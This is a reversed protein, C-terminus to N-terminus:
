VSDRVRINVAADSMLTGFRFCGFHGDFSSHIKLLTTCGYLPTSNLSLFPIYYFIIFFFPVPVSM